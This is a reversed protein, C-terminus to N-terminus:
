MWRFAEKHAGTTMDDLGFAGRVYNELMDKYWDLDILTRDPLHDLPWMYDLPKMGPKAGKLAGGKAVVPGLGLELRGQTGKEKAAPEKGLGELPRKCVVFRYKKSAKLTENTLREIAKARKMWVSDSGDPNPKYSKWPQVVQVLTLDEIDVKNIDFGKILESTWKKISARMAQRAKEEDQWEINDRLSNIMIEELFKPAIPAKDSGRFNNGKTTMRLKGKKVDFILYNKHVVFVMADHSGAELEFDSYGLYARWKENLKGIAEIARDPHIIWSSDNPEFPVDLSESVHMLNRGSRSCGIYIGDTDAYIVKAGEAHLDKVTDALIKQGVTTIEGGAWLNFGRCSVNVALMQGHTGANRLAKISAYAMQLRDLDTKSTAANKKAAGLQRKLKTAIGMIGKMASPVLGAESDIRVGVMTGQGPKAYNEDPGPPRFVFRPDKTFEEPLKYFWIWDDPTEGARALRVTDPGVNRARLITPYMAGVDADVVHFWPVFHSGVEQPHITMGGPIAYGLYEEESADEDDGNGGAEGTEYVSKPNVIVHPLEVWDPMEDGYKAVRVYEKLWSGSDGSRARNKADESISEKTPRSGLNRLVTRAVSQARCTAPMLKRQRAARILAMHDWMRVNGGTLVEEFTWGTTFALPLAQALLLMTIGLQEQCDHKNYEMTRADLKMDAPSLYVRNPVNVGLFPAVKKLSFDDLFFYFRRAAHYTDLSTRFFNVTESQQGFSFLRDRAAWKGNEERVRGGDTHVRGAFTDFLRELNRGLTQEKANLVQYHRIRDYVQLNDFSLINHGSVVHHDTVEQILAALHQVEEDPTRAVLQKVECDTWAPPADVMEFHFEEKEIDKSASYSIEFSSHGIIDIPPNKVHGYQTTEIDYVLVKLRTKQGKTDFTWAKESAALDACARQQYPVDHEATFLDHRLFLEDSVEPVFYSRNTQVPFAPRRAGAQVFSRVEQLDGISKIKLLPSDSDAGGPGGTRAAEIAGLLRRRVTEADQGKKPLAWFWPDHGLDSLRVPGRDRFYAYENSLSLLVDM